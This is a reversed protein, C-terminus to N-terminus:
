WPNLFCWYAIAGSLPLSFGDAGLNRATNDSFVTQPCSDRPWGLMELMMPGSIVVDKQYSYWLSSSTWTGPADLRFPLREVSQGVNCWLRCVLQDLPITPYRTHAAYLCVNAVDRQRESNTMGRFRPSFCRSYFNDSGSMGIKRRTDLSKGQWGRMKKLATDEDKQLGDQCHFLHNIGGGWCNSVDVRVRQNM